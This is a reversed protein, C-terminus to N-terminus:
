LSKVVHRVIESMERVRYPKAIVGQFGYDRYNAMIPDNSYGSSVIAKVGPDLELLKKVTEKGGTGGPVTLDLIVAHFPKGANRAEQYCMVAENGDKVTEVEYGAAELIRRAADRIIDEDDMILIRGTGVVLGISEARPEVKVSSAPLLLTVTTGAGAESAVTIDGGHKKVISYSTALGLGSGGQRTTFFPDFIKALHEKAIGDGHDRITITVYDGPALSPPKRAAIKTNAAIVEIVGGQPMAQVANIVINHLVQRLQGEDGEVPALGPPLSFECAVTSGRLAFGVADKLLPNILVAKKVPAGGDSFTLLQHTLDKARVSAQEAQTLLQQLGPNNEARLKALEINATIGTILNNFDHAIGGALTGLSELKQAQLMENELKRRETTDRSNIIIRVGQTADGISTGRADITHWSGNRHRFRAEISGATGPAGILKTFIDRGAQQDDPHVFEFVSRGALEVPDYGLLNSVSPSEFLIVGSSDLVTIIDLTNEILTRFHEESKLLTTQANIRAAIEKQLLENALSLEATRDRVLEELHDRHQQLAQEAKERETIESRLKENLKDTREKAAALYAMLNENEFRLKSSATSAADVRMAAVSLMIGFLMLLGGMAIHVPDGMLFFYFSLPALTPLTFALFAKFSVSFAGAAGAVMGGLVFALFAQHPVSSVPFLLIGGAGWAIGALAIGAAFRAERTRPDAPHSALSRYRRILIYRYLTIVMLCSFWAIINKHPVVKWQVYSLVASNVVSAAMGLPAQRFLTDVTEARILSRGETPTEDKSFLRFPM